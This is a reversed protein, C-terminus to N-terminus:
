PIVFNYFASFKALKVFQNNIFQNFFILFNSMEYALVYYKSMFSSVCIFLHQWYHEGKQFWLQIEHRRTACLSAFVRTFFFIYIYMYIIYVWVNLIYIYTYIYIYIYIYIYVYIYIYIYMYIYTYIHIYICMCLINAFRCFCLIRARTHIYIHMYM